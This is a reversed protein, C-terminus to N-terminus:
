KTYSGDPKIILLLPNNQKLTANDAHPMYVKGGIAIRGDTLECATLFDSSTNIGKKLDIDPKDTKDLTTNAKENLDADTLVFKGKTVVQKENVLFRSGYFLLNGNKLVLVDNSSFDPLTGNNLAEGTASLKIVRTESVGTQTKTYSCMYIITNDISLGISQTYISGPVDIAKKWIIDGQPNIKYLIPVYDSKDDNYKRGLILITKDHAMLIKEGEENQESSIKKVWDSSNDTLAVKRVTINYQDGKSEKTLLQYNWQKNIDSVADKLHTSFVANEAYSKVIKGSGSIVMQLPEYLKNNLKNGSVLFLSDSIGQFSSIDALNPVTVSKEVANFNGLDITHLILNHTKYNEDSVRSCAIVQQRLEILGIMRSNSYRADKLPYYFLGTQAQSYITLSGILCLVALVYKIIQMFPNM